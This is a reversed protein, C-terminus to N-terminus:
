WAQRLALRAVQGEVAELDRHEGGGKLQAQRFIVAPHLSVVLQGARPEVAPVVGVLREPHLPLEGPSEGAVVAGPGHGSPALLGGQLRGCSGGSM